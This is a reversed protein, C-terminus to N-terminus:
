KTFRQMFERFGHNKEPKAAFRGTHMSVAQPAGMNLQRAIWVNTGLNAQAAPLRDM